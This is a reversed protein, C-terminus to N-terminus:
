TEARGMEAEFVIYPIDRDMPAEKNTSTYMSWAQEQTVLIVAVM